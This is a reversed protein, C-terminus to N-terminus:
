IVNAIKNREENYSTKKRHLYLTELHDFYKSFNVKIQQQELLKLFFFSISELSVVNCCYLMFVFLITKHWIYILLM